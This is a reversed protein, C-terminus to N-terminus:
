EREGFYRSVVRVDGGSGSGSSVEMLTHIATWADQYAVEAELAYYRTELAIRGRMAPSIEMSAFVPNAWFEDLNRYGGRRRDHIVREAESRRLMEGMVMMLLPGDGPKLTQANLAVPEGVPLACVFPRLRDYVAPSFGRVARLESVSILPANGARYPPELGAYHYDEAGRPRPVNDADIWDTLADILEEATNLDMDLVELLRRFEDRADPDAAERGSEPRRVLSNLNFCNGGDSLTGTVMGGEIPFQVTRAGGERSLLRRERETGAHEAIQRRAYEEVGLAYWFSQDNLELNVTRRVGFRVDDVLAVAAAAMVVVLVLVTLLVAGRERARTTHPPCERM